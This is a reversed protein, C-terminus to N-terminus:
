WESGQVPELITEEAIARVFEGRDDLSPFSLRLGSVFSRFWPVAFWLLALVQLALSLGFAAQYAALPYGRWALGVHDHRWQRISGTGNRRRSATRSASRASRFPSAQSRRLVLTEPAAISRSPTSAYGSVAQEAAAGGQETTREHSLLPTVTKKSSVPRARNPSDSFFRGITTSLERFWAFDSDSM